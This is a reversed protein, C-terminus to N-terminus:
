AYEAFRYQARDFILAALLFIAVTCAAAYGAWFLDPPRHLVVVANLSELIGGLPNLLLYPAWDGLARAEYFVPTFFIGFTLLAEVIYKVDRFFLNACALFIAVGATLLVLTALLLPLWLLQASIGIRGLSLFLTLVTSAVAFDVLHALVTSLPLVQRPFYIKTILSTNGTLSNTAFRVSGVFFSWPLAKVSVSAIDAISLARGSALSFAKQVLVGAAIVLAPMLLAWAFGMISEKYRIKLEKVTFMLLLYRYALLDRLLKPM